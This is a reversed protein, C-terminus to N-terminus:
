KDKFHAFTNIEFYHKNSILICILNSLFLIHKMPISTTNYFDLYVSEVATCIKMVQATDFLIKLMVRAVPKIHAIKAIM